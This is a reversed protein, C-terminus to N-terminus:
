LQFDLVVVNKSGDRADLRALISLTGDTQLRRVDVLPEGSLGSGHWVLQFEAYGNQKAARLIRLTSADSDPLLVLLDGSKAVALRGRKGGTVPGITHQTWAGTMPERYFHRWMPRGEGEFTRNLVHVGGDAYVAQSEQNTLGSRKPIGFVVLDPADPTVGRGGGAPGLDAVVAGHTNRWTRGDDDSYAYCLDHNNEAGNPGAQQKHKTDLPDDWGDYHVFGRYVWTVHLRGAGDERIQYDMGHVYPNNQVGVLHTGVFVFCGGSGDDGDDGARYVYLHDDGLGAKGTRFSMFMDRGGRGAPGFRPYTVYGFHEHTRPLGPLHDLTPTFLAPTWPFRDPDSALAKVSHRYRLSHTTDVM